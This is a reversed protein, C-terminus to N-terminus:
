KMFVITASVTEAVPELNVDTLNGNADFEKNLIYEIPSIKLSLSEKSWSGGKQILGRGTQNVIIFKSPVFTLKNGISTPKNPQLSVTAVFSEMNDEFSLSTFALELTKVLKGIDSAGKLNVIM